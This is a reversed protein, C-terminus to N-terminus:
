SPRGASASFGVSFIRGENSSKGRNSLKPHKYHTSYGHINELPFDPDIRGQRKFMEWNPAGVVPSEITIQNYVAGLDLFSDMEVQLNERNHHKMGLILLSFRKSGGRSCTPWWSKLIWGAPRRLPGPSPNSM